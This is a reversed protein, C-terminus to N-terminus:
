STGVWSSETIFKLRKEADDTARQAEEVGDRVTRVRRAVLLAVAANAQIFKLVAIDNGRVANIYRRASEASSNVIIDRMKIGRIGMDEAVVETEKIKGDDILLMKTRGIPSVEDIGPEGHVLAASKIGLMIAAEAMEYMIDQSFVGIVRYSVTGPNTLPGLMNFITRVALQKRVSAVAKMAPHYMQAFIFAFGTNNLLRAATEPGININYGLAELFDASGSSSSVARNGHKLIKLKGALLLSAATSANFTMSGDGGTGATDLEAEANVKIAHRKMATAFGAIESSKEGKARLAALAAGVQVESLSGGFMMECLQASENIDLDIGDMIKSLIKRYAESM